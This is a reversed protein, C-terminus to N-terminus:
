GALAAHSAGTGQAAILRAVSHRRPQGGFAARVDGPIDSGYRARVFDAQTWEPNDAENLAPEENSM